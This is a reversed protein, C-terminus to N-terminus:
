THVYMCLVFSVLLSAFCFYVSVNSYALTNSSRVYMGLEAYSRMLLTFSRIHTRVYVTCQSHLIGSGQCPVYTHIHLFVRVISCLLVTSEVQAYQMTSSFRLSVVLPICITPVVIIYRTWSGILSCMTQKFVWSYVVKKSSACPWLHQMVYYTRYM